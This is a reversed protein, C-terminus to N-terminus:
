QHDKNTEKGKGLGFDEALAGVQNPNQRPAYDKPPLMGDDDNIHLGFGNGQSTPLLKSAVEESCLGQAGNALHQYVDKYSDTMQQILEATTNFHDSVEERYIAQSRQLEQVHSELDTVQASDTAKNAAFWYGLAAGAALCGLAIMWVM